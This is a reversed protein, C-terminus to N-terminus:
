GRTTAKIKIDVGAPLSLKNLAEITKATDIITEGKSVSSSSASFEVTDAGLRRAALSFSNRTRTSDEFFINACTRGKLLALKERSQSSYQKFEEALRLITQLEEASLSELDLLHRRNWQDPFSPFVRANSSTIETGM